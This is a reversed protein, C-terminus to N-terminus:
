VLSSGSSWDIVSTSFKIKELCIRGVNQCVVRAKENAHVDAFPIHKNGGRRSIEMRMMKGRGADFQM